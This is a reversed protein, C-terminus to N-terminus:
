FDKRIFIISSIIILITPIIIGIIAALALPNIIDVLLAPLISLASLQNGVYVSLIATVPVSSVTVGFLLGISCSIAIAALSTALSEFLTRMFTNSLGGMTCYDILLGLILSILVAIVLCLYVACFKAFLLTIRKVPRILFLDYVKQNIESTLSTGIMASAITGGIASLVISVLISFPFEAMDPQFFHMLITIMPLGIWLVFMVKSKFFGHFEDSFIILFKM